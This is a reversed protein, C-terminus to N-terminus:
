VTYFLVLRLFTLAKTEERSLSHQRRRKKFENDRALDKHLAINSSIGDILMEDLAIEM